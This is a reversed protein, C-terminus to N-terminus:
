NEAVLRLQPKRRRQGKFGRAARQARTEARRRYVVGRVGKIAEDTKYTKWRNTALAFPTAQPLWTLRYMSPFRQDEFSAKGRRTIDIWGLADLAEIADAISDGRVGYDRFNKYTVILAGNATAAHNMHELWIRDLARREWIGLARWAASELMEKTLWAWSEGSPARNMKQWDNSLRKRRKRAPKTVIM